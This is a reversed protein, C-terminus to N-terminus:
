TRFGSLRSFDGNEARFVENKQEALRWKQLLFDGNRGLIDTRFGNWNQYDDKVLDPRFSQQQSAIPHDQTSASFKVLYWMFDSMVQIRAKYVGDFNVSSAYVLCAQSKASGRMRGAIDGVFECLDASLPAM